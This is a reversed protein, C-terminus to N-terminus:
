VIYGFYFLILGIIFWAIGSAKYVINSSSIMPKFIQVFNPIILLGAGKVVGWYGILTIIIRWDPVWLNHAAIIFAGILLALVGGLLSRHEARLIDEYWGRFRGTNFILALGVVLFYIGYAKAFFISIWETEM